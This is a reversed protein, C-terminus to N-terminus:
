LRQTLVRCLNKFALDDLQEKSPPKLGRVRDRIEARLSHAADYGMDTLVNTFNNGVKRSDYYSESVRGYPTDVKIEGNVTFTAAGNRDFKGGSIRITFEGDSRGDYYVDGRFGEIADELRWEVNSETSRGCSSPRMDNSISVDVRVYGFTVERDWNRGPDEPTRIRTSRTSLMESAMLAELAQPTVLLARETRVPAPGRQVLIVGQKEFVQLKWDLYREDPFFVNPENGFVTTMRELSPQGQAFEVSIARAVANEGRGDLLVDINLGQANPLRLAEPWFPSKATNYLKKIDGDKSTGLAINAWRYGNFEEIPPAVFQTPAKALLLTAIALSTM